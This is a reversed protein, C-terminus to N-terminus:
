VKHNALMSRFLDSGLFSNILMSQYQLDTGFSLGQNSYNSQSVNLTSPINQPGFQPFAPGFMGNAVGQNQGQMNQNGQNCNNNQGFCVNEVAQPKGNGHSQNGFSFANGSVPNAGVSSGANVGNFNNGFTTAPVTPNTFVNNTPKQSTFQNQSFFTNNPTNTNNQAFTNNTQNINFNFASQTQSNMTNPIGNNGGFAGGFVSGNGNVTSTGFANGGVGFGVGTNKNGTGFSFGNGGNTGFGFSSAGGQSSGGFNGGNGTNGGNFNGFGFSSTPAIINGNQQQNGGSM